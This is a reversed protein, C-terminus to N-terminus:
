ADPNLMGLESILQNFRKEDLPKTFLDALQYETPIFHLEVDGNMVHDRIFHYRINIHKTKSHLVPNNAIAIAIASTNNCYIPIKSLQFGYDLLQACCSGAAVYEAEDTSTSVSNQKKSTWSVLKGGLLHCWWHHKKSRIQLWLGLNPTGKLYRFIRKVAKLHSEKPDAHIEFGHCFFMNTSTCLCTAYMIDPRSATLYLLSGIMGRYTSVDVSKGNSDKDLKLPPAMPTKMESCTTLDFKKLMDRVYKGQSIFIGKKSQKICRTSLNCSHSLSKAFNAKTSGFIIDDVYIQALFVHDKYSKVFLTSDIKGHTFGETILFTSLTEYWARHGQKLGYLAKNLKYVHNPHKPDTFGPPQAVYVEEALKGNLFASKVDMQYVQFNCHAAYALFLRIAELKAVHAFTENYDIGEEQRYGQAVLRAKNRIVIGHEDLKNRFVWKLGNITKRSPKHVLTWVLNRNLEALEEQMASVWSPDTLAEDVKTHEHESLFSVYLCHNGSQQRTKVGTSPDGLVQDIPHDKTWRLALPQPIAQLPEANTSSTSEDAIIQIPEAASLISAKPVDNLQLLNDADQVVEASGSTSPIDEQSITPSVQNLPIGSHIPTDQPINPEEFGDPIYSSSGAVPTSVKPIDNEPVQFYSNAWQDIDDSDTFSPASSFPDIEDFKVHITEELTQRRKNFVRYAKSVTSYGVLFGDDAKADFKGLNDRDNKIYCNCGFIHFFSINPILSRNLTYCATNVAEAWFQIPLCAEILMSRVAEIQTRNRRETVGNQQPTRVSSFNQSIGKSVLFDDLVSNKFETGHDSRLSRVTILNYKEMQLIFNIIEQSADSKSRLFFSQDAKWRFFSTYRSYEDVIVLTYHKGGISLTNVHGFIDMHLLQLPSSITSVQKSKFSARTQKGKECASCLSEKAFSKEPLGDVLNIISLQNITKFNLHSLRKHWLWNIYSSAMSMFCVNETSTDMNITYVDGFRQGRLIVKKEKCDKKSFSVKHDKDCLQSISLLNHTLGEVYSVKKFTTNGNTLTGYGKTIGRGAGGFKVSPGAEEKFDILVHKNKTMHKSCGSDLYWIGKGWMFNLGTSDASSSENTVYFIMANSTPAVVDTMESKESNVPDPISSADPILPNKRKVSKEATPGKKVKAALLIIMKVVTIAVESPRLRLSVVRLINSSSIPQDKDLFAKEATQPPIQTKEEPKSIIDVKLRPVPNQGTKLKGSRPPGGGLVKPTKFYTKSPKPPQLSFNSDMSPQDSISNNEDAPCSNSSVFMGFKLSSKDPINDAHLNDKNFGLCTRIKPHRKESYLEALVKEKEAIVQERELCLIQNVHVQDKYSEEYIAFEKLKEYCDKLETRLDLNIKETSSKDNLANHLDITLAEMASMTDSPSPTSVQFPPLSSSTPTAPVEEPIDELQAMLVPEAEEIIAMLCTAETTDEKVSSDDSSDDWGKGEAILGKGKRQYKLKRYKAKLKWYKDEKSAPSSSEAFQM